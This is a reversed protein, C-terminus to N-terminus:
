LAVLEGSAEIPLPEGNERPPIVAEIADESVIAVRGHVPDSFQAFGSFQEFFVRDGEQIEDTLDLGCKLVVGTFHAKRHTDPKVLKRLEGEGLARPAEEWTVLARKGLLEKITAVEIPDYETLPM